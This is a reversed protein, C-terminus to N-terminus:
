MWGGALGDQPARTARYCMVMIHYRSEVSVDIYLTLYQSLRPCLNLTVPVLHMSQVPIKLICTDCLNLENTPCRETMRISCVLRMDDRENLKNQTCSGTARSLLIQKTSFSAKQQKHPSVGGWSGLTIKADRHDLGPMGRGASRHRPWAMPRRSVERLSVGCVHGYPSKQMVTIWDQEPPTTSADRQRCLPTM